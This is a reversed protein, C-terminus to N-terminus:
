HMYHQGECFQTRENTPVLPLPKMCNAHFDSLTYKTLRIAEIDDVPTNTEYNYSWVFDLLRPLPQDLTNELFTMAVKLNNPSRNACQDNMNKSYGADAEICGHVSDAVHTDSLKAYNHM